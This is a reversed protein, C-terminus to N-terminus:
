RVPCMPEAFRRRKARVKAIARSRPGDPRDALMERGGFCHGRELRLVFQRRLSVQTEGSKRAVGAHNERPQEPPFPIVPTPTAAADAVASPFGFEPTRCSL